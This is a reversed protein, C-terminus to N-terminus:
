SYQDTLNVFFFIVFFSVFSPDVIIIYLQCCYALLNCSGWDLRQRFKKSKIVNDNYFTQATVQYDHNGVMNSGTTGTAINSLLSSAANVISNPTSSSQSTSSSNNSSSNPGSVVTSVLQSFTKSVSSSTSSSSTPTNLESKSLKQITSSEFVPAGPIICPVVSHQRHFM